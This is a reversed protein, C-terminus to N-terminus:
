KKPIYANVGVIVKKGDVVCDTEKNGYTSAVVLTKGSSSKEPKANMPIRLVLEDGVIKASFAMSRNRPNSTPSAAFQCEVIGTGIKEHAAYLTAPEQHGHRCSNRLLHASSRVEGHAQGLSSM